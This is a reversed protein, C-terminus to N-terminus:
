NKPTFRDNEIQEATENAMIAITRDVQVKLEDPQLFALLIRILSEAIGIVSGGDIVFEEDHKISSSFLEGKDIKGNSNSM